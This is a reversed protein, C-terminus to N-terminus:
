EVFLELAREPPRAVIAREGRVVIPRELLSPHQQLVDLVRESSADALGLTTYLPEGTRILMRPDDTGLRRLLRELDPRTPPHELYHIYEAVIGREHFLRRLARSKSCDPNFFVSLPESMRALMRGSAM